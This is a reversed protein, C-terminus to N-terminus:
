DDAALRAAAAANLAAIEAASWADTTRRGARSRVPADGAPAARPQTSAGPGPVPAQSLGYRDELTTQVYRWRRFPDALGLAKRFAQEWRAPDPYQHALAWLTTVTLTTPPGIEQTYLCLGTLFAPHAVVARVDAVCLPREAALVPALAELVAWPVQEADPPGILAALVSQEAANLVAGTLKEWAVALPWAPAATEVPPIGSPPPGKQEEQYTNKKTDTSCGGGPPQVTVTSRDGGALEVALTAPAETTGPDATAVDPSGADGAEVPIRTSTLMGDARLLYARVGNFTGRSDGFEPPLPLICLVQQAVLWHLAKPITTRHLGLEAALGVDTIRCYLRGEDQATVLGLAALQAFDDGTLPRAHLALALLVPLATRGERSGSFRALWGSTLAVYRLTVEVDRGAQLTGTDSLDLTLQHRISLVQTM